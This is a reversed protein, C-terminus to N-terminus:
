SRSAIRPKAGCRTILEARDFDSTAAQGPFDTDLMAILGRDGQDRRKGTQGGSTQRQRDREQHAFRQWGYGRAPGQGRRNRDFEQQDREADRDGPHFGAAEAHQM